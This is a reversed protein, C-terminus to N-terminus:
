WRDHVFALDVGPDALVVAGHGLGALVFGVALTYRSCKSIRGLFELDDWGIRIQPQATPIRQRQRPQPLYAVAVVVEVVIYIRSVIAPSSVSHIKQPVEPPSSLSLCNDIQSASGPKVHEQGCLTNPRRPPDDPDVHVLYTTKTHTHTHIHM